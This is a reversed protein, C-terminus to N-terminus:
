RLTRKTNTTITVYVVCKSYGNSKKVDSMCRKTSLYFHPVIVLTFNNILKLKRYMKNDFPTATDLLLFSVSFVPKTCFRLWFSSFRIIYLLIMTM